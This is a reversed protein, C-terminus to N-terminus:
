SGIGEIWGAIGMLALIGTVVLIAGMLRSAPTPTPWSSEPLEEIELSLITEDIMDEWGWGEPHDHDAYNNEWEIIARYRM